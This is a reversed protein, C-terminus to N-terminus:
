NHRKLLSSDTHPVSNYFFFQCYVHEPQSQTEKIKFCVPYPSWLRTANVFSCTDQRGREEWVFIWIKRVFCSRKLKNIDKNHKKLRQLLWQNAQTMGAWIDSRCSDTHTCKMQHGAWIGYINTEHLNWYSWAKRLPHSPTSTFPLCTTPIFLPCNCECNTNSPFQKCFVEISLQTHVYM